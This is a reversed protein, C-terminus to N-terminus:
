HFLLSFATLINTCEYVSIISNKCIECISIISRQIAIGTPLLLNYKHHIDKLCTYLESNFVSPDASHPQFDIAALSGGLFSYM